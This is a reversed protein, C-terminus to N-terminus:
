NLVAIVTFSQSIINMQVRLFLLDSSGSVIKALFSIWSANTSTEFKFLMLATLTLCM